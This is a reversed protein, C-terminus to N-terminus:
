DENQMICGVHMYKCRNSWLLKPRASIKVMDYTVEEFYTTKLHHNTDLRWVFTKKYGHWNACTYLLTFKCIYCKCMM